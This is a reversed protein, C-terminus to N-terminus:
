IAVKKLCVDPQPTATSVENYSIASAERKVARFETADAADHYKRVHEECCFIRSRHHALFFVGCLPCRRLNALEGTMLGEAIIGYFDARPNYIPFGCDFDMTVIWQGEGWEILRQSLNLLRHAPNSKPVSDWLKARHKSAPFDYVALRFVESNSLRVRKAGPLVKFVARFKMESLKKVLVRLGDDLKIAAEIRESKRARSGPPKAILLLDDIIEIRLNELYRISHESGFLDRHVIMNLAGDLTELRAEHFNLNLFKVLPDLRGTLPMGKAPKRKRSNNKVM